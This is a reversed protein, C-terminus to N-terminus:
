KKPVNKKPFITKKIQYLDTRRDNLNRVSGHVHIEQLLDVDVDSILIMETNATAEAKIGNTPFAFDCPTFVASQAFQIDMNSVKPLNGVCGAIAVYCENEIARAQACRKVRNFGNQTDTLFPVFLLQMGDEALLRSLEPFEVDYCILIGIKGSDTNYTKISNGGVMGWSNSESPTIHLKTFMEQTGDRRCLFGVNYLQNNDIYPMSGTIININYSIAFEQFKSKIEETYGALKRIAEAAGLHNFEVMLPANFFEPFLAFNCSYDSVADVFYEMQEFLMQINKLPRMQWQVLGLRIVSKKTNIVRESHTYYINNWELLTAYEQSSSDEPLYGKIVKLVHFDNSLQFTLVPDYIEKLKVKQIYEKPSLTNSYDRYNPIRGGFVISKLNLKECLEKRTDYLRRGLRLGRYEPNIFVDIGYLVDGDPTHTDFTFNGTIDQYTHDEEFDESRVILSLACGVVKGDVIVGLQGKPFVKLLRQIHHERWHSDEMDKYATVMSNKLEEYDKLKLHRIQVKNIKKVM